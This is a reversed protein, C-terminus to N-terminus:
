GGLTLTGFDRICPMLIRRPISMAIILAIIAAGGAPLDRLLPLVGPWYFANSLSLLM